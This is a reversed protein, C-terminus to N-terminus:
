IMMYFIHVSIKEVIEEICCFFSNSNHELFSFVFSGHAYPTQIEVIPLITIFLIARSVIVIPLIQIETTKSDCVKM